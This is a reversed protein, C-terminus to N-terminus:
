NFTLPYGSRGCYINESISGPPSWCSFPSLLHPCLSTWVALSQPIMQKTGRVAILPQLIQLVTIPAGLLARNLNNRQATMCLNEPLFQVTAHSTRVQCFASLLYAPWSDPVHRDLLGNAAPWAFVNKPTSAIGGSTRLHDDMSTSSLKLM